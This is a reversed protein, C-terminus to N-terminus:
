GVEGSFTWLGLSGRYLIPTKWIDPDRLLWRWMGPRAWKDESNQVCDYLEVSGLILGNFKRCLDMQNEIEGDTLNPNNTLWNQRPANNDWRRSAHILIRGRLKTKWTRNEVGKGCRM